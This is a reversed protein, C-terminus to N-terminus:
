LSSPPILSFVRSILSVLPKDLGISQQQLYSIIFSSIGELVFRDLKLSNALSVALLAAQAEAYVDDSPPTFQYLSKVITGHSNRCIAVQVFFFESSAFDFNVKYYGENPASWLERVPQSILTGLQM